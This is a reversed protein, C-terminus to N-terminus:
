EPQKPFPDEALTGAELETVTHGPPPKVGVGFKADTAVKTVSVVQGRADKVVITKVVAATNTRRQGVRREEPPVTEYRPPTGAAEPEHAAGAETEHKARAPETWPGGSQRAHATPRQSQTM